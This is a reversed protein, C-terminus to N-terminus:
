YSLLDSTETEEAASRNHSLAKWIFSSQFRSNIVQHEEPCRCSIFLYM